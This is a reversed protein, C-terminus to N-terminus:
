VEGMSRIQVIDLAINGDCLWSSILVWLKCSFNGLSVNLFVWSIFSSHSVYPVYQPDLYYVYRCRWWNCNCHFTIIWWHCQWTLIIVDHEANSIAHANAHLQITGGGTLALMSTAVSTSWQKSAFFYSGKFIKVTRIHSERLLIVRNVFRFIKYYIVMIILTNAHNM